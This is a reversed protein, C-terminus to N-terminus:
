KYFDVISEVLSQVTYKEPSIQVTYGLQKAATETIPGIVAVNSKLCDPPIVKSFNRVSSPSTFTVIDLKENSLEKLKHLSANPMTNEYVVIQKVNYGLKVLQERLIPRALDGQILLISAQKKVEDTLSDLLHEATFKNPMVTVSLGRSELAEKTKEGVAAIKKHIPKDYLQFFYDVGNTSTFVVIDMEAMCEQIQNSIEEANAPLSFQILPVVLATGGLEEVLHSFDTAQEKSRTILIRKHLLPLSNKM